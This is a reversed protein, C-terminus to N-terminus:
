TKMIYALAYYPPLNANTGSSGTSSTTGSVSVSHQHDPAANITIFTEAPSTVYLESTDDPTGGGYDGGTGLQSADNFPGNPGLVAHSHEPDTISHSHGGAAGTTTTDSFTHTHSPITANASGGTANVSYSSGAGVIFRDQLNPAGNNGDCLVWGSPINSIAGSWMLIMGAAIGGSGAVIDNIQNQLSSTAGAVHNLEAGTTTVTTVGVAWSGEALKPSIATTGDLLDDISDLNANLKEGWTNESAGLEPKTLGYTTTTTDAM